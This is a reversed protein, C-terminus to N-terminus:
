EKEAKREIAVRRTNAAVSGSGVKEEYKHKKGAGSVSYVIIPPRAHSRAGPTRKEKRAVTTGCGESMQEGTERKGM